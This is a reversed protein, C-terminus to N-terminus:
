SNSFTFTSLIKNMIEQNQPLDFNSILHEYTLTYVKDQNIITFILKAHDERDPNRITMYFGVTDSDKIKHERDEEIIALDPDKVM